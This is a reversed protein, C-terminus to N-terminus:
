QSYWGAGRAEPRASRSWADWQLVGAVFSVGSPALMLGGVGALKGSGVLIGVAMLVFSAALFVFGSWMWRLWVRRWPERVVASAANLTAIMARLQRIEEDRPDETGM